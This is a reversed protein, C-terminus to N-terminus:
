VTPHLQSVSLSHCTTAVVADGVYKDQPVNLKDDEGMSTECVPHPFINSTIGQLKNFYNIMATRCEANDKLFDDLV